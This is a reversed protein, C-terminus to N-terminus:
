EFNFKFISTSARCNELIVLRDLAVEETASERRPRRM